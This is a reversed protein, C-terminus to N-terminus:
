TKATHLTPKTINTGLIEKHTASPAKIELSLSNRKIDLIFSYRFTVMQDQTFDLPLGLFHTTGMKGCVGWLWWQQYAYKPVVKQEGCRWTQPELIVSITWPRKIERRKVLTLERICKEEKFSIHVRWASAYPLTWDLVRLLCGGNQISFMVPAWTVGTVKTFPQLTATQDETASM